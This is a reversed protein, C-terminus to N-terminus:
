LAELLSTCSRAGALRLHWDLPVHLNRDLRSCTSPLVLKRDDCERGHRPALRFRLRVGNINCASTNVGSFLCALTNVGNTNCAPTNNVITTTFLLNSIWAATTPLEVEAGSAARSQEKRSDRLGEVAEESM